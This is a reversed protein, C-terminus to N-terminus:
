YQFSLGILGMFPTRDTRTYEFSQQNLLNKLTLFLELNKVPFYAVKLNVLLKGNIDGLGNEYTNSIKTNKVQRLIATSVNDYSSKSFFYSTLSTQWKKSITYTM